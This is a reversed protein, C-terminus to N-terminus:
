SDSEELNAEKLAMGEIAPLLDNIVLREGQMLEGDIVVQNDRRYLV